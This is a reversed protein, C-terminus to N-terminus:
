KIRGCDTCEGCEWAKGRIIVRAGCTPCRMTEAPTKYHVSSNEGIKIMLCFIGAMIAFFGIIDIITM